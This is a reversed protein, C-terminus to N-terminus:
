LTKPNRYQSRLIPDTILAKIKNLYQDKIAFHQPHSSETWADRLARTIYSNIGINRILQVVPPTLFQTDTHNDTYSNRAKMVSTVTDFMFWSALVLENRTIWTTVIWHFLTPDPRDSPRCLDMLYTDIYMNIVYAANDVDNVDVCAELVMEYWRGNIQVKSSKARAQMLQLLEIARQIDAATKSQSLATILTNYNSADLEMEDIQTMQEYVRWMCDTAVPAGSVAWGSMVFDYTCTTPKLLPNVTDSLKRMHNHLQETWEAGNVTGLKSYCKLFICYTHIDPVVLAKRTGSPSQQQTSMRHEMLQLIHEAHDYEKFNLCAEIACNYLQADPKCNTDGVTLYRNEIENVLTEVKSAIGRSILKNRPNDDTSNGDRFTRNSGAKAMANFLLSYTDLNPQLKLQMCIPHNFIWRYTQYARNAAVTPNSSSSNAWARILCNIIEIDVLSRQCENRLMREVLEEAREPLNCNSYAKILIVHPRNDDGDPYTEFMQEVQPLKQMTAYMEMLRILTIQSDPVKAVCRKSFLLNWRLPPILSRSPCLLTATNISPHCRPLLRQQSFERPRLVAIRSKM